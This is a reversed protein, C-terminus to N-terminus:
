RFHTGVKSDVFSYWVLPDSLILILFADSVHQQMWDLYADEWRLVYPHNAVHSYFWRRQQLWAETVEPDHTWLGGCIGLAQSCVNPPALKTVEHMQEIPPHLPSMHMSDRWLYDLRDVDLHSESPTNIISVHSAHLDEPRRYKGPCIIALVMDWEDNDLFVNKAKLLTRIWRAGREEHSEKALPGLRGPGRAATCRDFAHSFPGHGVDHLLGAVTIARVNVKMEPHIDAIRKAAIYALRACGISHSFRSHTSAPAIKSAFGTQKVYRLRQVLPHNILTEIGPVNSRLTSLNIETDDEREM